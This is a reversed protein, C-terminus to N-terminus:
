APGCPPEPIKLGYSGNSGECVVPLLFVLVPLNLETSFKSTPTVLKRLLFSLTLASKYEYTLVPKVFKLAIPSTYANTPEFIGPSRPAATAASAVAYTVLM